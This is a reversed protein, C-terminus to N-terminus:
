ELSHPRPLSNALRLDRSRGGGARTTPAIVMAFGNAFGSAFGNVFVTAFAIAL